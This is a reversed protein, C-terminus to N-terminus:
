LLTDYQQMVCSMSFNYKSGRLDCVTLEEEETELIYILMLFRLLEIIDRLVREGDKNRRLFLVLGAFDM